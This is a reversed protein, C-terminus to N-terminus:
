LWCYGNDSGRLAEYHVGGTKNIQIIGVTMCKRYVLCYIERYNSIVVSNEIKRGIFNRTM